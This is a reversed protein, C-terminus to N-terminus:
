FRPKISTHAGVHCDHCLFQVNRPDFERSPDDHVSVVHHAELADVMAKCQECCYVGRAHRLKEKFRHWVAGRGPKDRRAPQPVMPDWKRPLGM